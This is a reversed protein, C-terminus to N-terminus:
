QSQVSCSEENSTRPCSPPVKAALWKVQIDGEEPTKRQGPKLPSVQNVVQQAIEDAEQEYRDGVPGNQLRAQVVPSLLWMTERNGASRQLMQVDSPLLSRPDIMARQVVQNPHARASTDSRKKLRSSIDNRLPLRSQKTVICRGENLHRHKDLYSAVIHSDMPFNRPACLTCAGNDTSKVTAASLGIPTRHLAVLLGDEAFVPKGKPCCVIRLRNHAAFSGGTAQSRRSSSSSSAKRM